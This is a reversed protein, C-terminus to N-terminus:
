PHNHRFFTVDNRVVMHDILHVFDLYHQTVAPGLFRAQDSGIGLNISM